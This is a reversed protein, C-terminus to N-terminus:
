GFLYKINGTTPRSTGDQVAVVVMGGKVEKLTGTLHEDSESQQRGDTRRRRATCDLRSVGHVTLLIPTAVHGFIVVEATADLARKRSAM